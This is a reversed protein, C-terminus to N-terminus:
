RGAGAARAKLAVQEKQEPSAKSTLGCLNCRVVQSTSLPIVPIFFLTFFRKSEIATAV